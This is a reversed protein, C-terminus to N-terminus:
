SLYCPNIFLRPGMISLGPYMSRRKTWWQIADVIIEPDTSLYCDLEDQTSAVRPASLSPLNDFINRSTSPQLEEDVTEVKSVEEIGDDDDSSIEDPSGPVLATKKSQASPAPPISDDSEDTSITSCCLVQNTNCQNRPESLTM